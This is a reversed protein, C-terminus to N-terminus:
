KIKQIIVSNVRINYWSVLKEIGEEWYNAEKSSLYINVADQRKDITTIYQAELRAKLDQFLHFDSLLLDLSYPPCDSIDRKFKKLDKTVYACHPQANDTISVMDSLLM